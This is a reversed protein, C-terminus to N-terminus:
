ADSGHDSAKTPSGKFLSPCICTQAKKISNNHGQPLIVEENCVAMWYLIMTSDSLSRRDAEFM